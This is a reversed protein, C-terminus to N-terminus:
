LTTWASGVGCWVWMVGCWVVAFWVVRRSLVFFLVGSVTWTLPLVCVLDVCLFLMTDCGLVADMALAGLPFMCRVAWAHVCTCQSCAYSIFCLSIHLGVEMACGFDIM